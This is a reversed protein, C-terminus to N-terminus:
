DPGITSNHAPPPGECHEIFKSIDANTQQLYLVLLAGIGAAFLTYVVMRRGYQLAFNQLPNWGGFCSRSVSDGICRVNTCTSALLPILVLIVGIVLPRPCHHSAGVAIIGGGIASAILTGIRMGYLCCHARGNWAQARDNIVHVRHELAERQEDRYALAIQEMSVAPLPSQADSIAVSHFSM